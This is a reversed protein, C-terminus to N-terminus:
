PGGDPTERNRAIVTGRVVFARPRSAKTLLVVFFECNTIESSIVEEWDRGPPIEIDIFVSHGQSVLSQHLFSAVSQDPEIDRKYSIFVRVPERTSPEAPSEDPGM